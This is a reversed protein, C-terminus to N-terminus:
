ALPNGSMDVRFYRNGGNEQVDWHDPVNGHARDKIWIRGLSDVYGVKGKKPGHRIAAKEITAEGKQNKALKPIFPTQGAIPLGAKQIQKQIKESLQDSL